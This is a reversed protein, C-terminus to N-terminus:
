NAALEFGARQNVPVLDVYDPHKAIFAQVFPCYPLVGLQRQRMADLAGRILTTGLGHGEYAGDVETHVFAYLSGPRPQYVTFGALAEDVHIEFRQKAAVDNVSVAPDSPDSPDSM